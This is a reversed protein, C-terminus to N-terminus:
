QYSHSDENFFLDCLWKKSSINEGISLLLILSVRAANSICSQPEGNLSGGVTQGSVIELESLFYTFSQKCWTTNKGLLMFELSQKNM